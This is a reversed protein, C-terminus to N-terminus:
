KSDRWEDMVDERGGLIKSHLSRFLGGLQIKLEEMLWKLPNNIFTWILVFPWYSMWFVINTTSERITPVKYSRMYSYCATKHENPLENYKINRDLKKTSLFEKFKRDFVRRSETLAFMFKVIAVIVGAIIFGLLSKLFFATNFAIWGTISFDSCVQILVMYVLTVVVAFGANDDATSYFILGLMFATPLLFWFTWGIIIFQMWEM